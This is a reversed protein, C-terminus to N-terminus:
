SPQQVLELTQGGPLVTLRARVPLHHQAPDLWV